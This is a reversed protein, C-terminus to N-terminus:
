CLKREGGGTVAATGKPVEGGGVDSFVTAAHTVFPFGGPGCGM